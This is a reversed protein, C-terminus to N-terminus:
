QANSPSQESISPSLWNDPLKISVAGQEKRLLAVWEIGVRMAEYIRGAIKAVKIQKPMQDIEKAIGSQSQDIHYMQLAAQVKQHNAKLQDIHLQVADTPPTVFMIPDGAPLEEGKFRAERRFFVMGPAFNVPVTGSKDSCQCEKAFETERGKCGQGNCANCPTRDMVTIPNVYSQLLLQVDSDARVVRTALEVVPWIFSDYFYLQDNTESFDESGAEVTFDSIDGGLQFWMKQNTNHPYRWTDITPKKGGKPFLLRRYEQRNIYYYFAGRRFVVEDPGIYHIEPFPVYWLAVDVAVSPNTFGEGFPMAVLLGNPDIFLKDNVVSRFFEWGDMDKFFYDKARTPANIQVQAPKGPLQAGDQGIGGPSEKLLGGSLLSFRCADMFDRFYNKCAAITLRLRDAKRTSGELIRYDEMIQGIGTGYIHAFCLQMREAIVRYYDPRMRQWLLFDNAIKEIGKM